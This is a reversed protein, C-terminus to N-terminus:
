IYPKNINLLTTLKYIFLRGPKIAAPTNEIAKLSSPRPLSVPLELAGLPRCDQSQGEPNAPLGQKHLHTKRPAHIDQGIRLDPFVQPSTPPLATCM